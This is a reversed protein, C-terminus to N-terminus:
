STKCHPPGDGVAGKSGDLQPAALRHSTLKWMRTSMHFADASPLTITRTRTIAQIWRHTWACRGRSVVYVCITLYRRAVGRMKKAIASNKILHTDRFKVTPQRLPVGEDILVQGILDDDRLKVIQVEVHVANNVVTGM